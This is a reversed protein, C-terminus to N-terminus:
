RNSRRPLGNEEAQDEEDPENISGPGPGPGPGPRFSPGNIGPEDDGTANENQKVNEILVNSTSTDMDVRAYPSVCLDGRSYAVTLMFGSLLFFLPMVSSGQFDIPHDSYIICHFLMIWFAAAGRLGDIALLKNGDHDDNNDM